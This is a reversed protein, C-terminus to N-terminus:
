EDYNTHTLKPINGWRTKNMALEFSTMMVNHLYSM